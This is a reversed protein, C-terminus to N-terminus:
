KQFYRTLLKILTLKKMFHTLNRIEITSQPVPKSTNGIINKTINTSNDMILKASSSLSTKERGEKKLTGTIPSSRTTTSNNLIYGYM